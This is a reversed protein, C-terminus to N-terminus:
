LRLALIVPVPEGGGVEILEPLHEERINVPVCAKEARALM